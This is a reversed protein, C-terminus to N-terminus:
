TQFSSVDLRQRFRNSFSYFLNSVVYKQIHLRGVM